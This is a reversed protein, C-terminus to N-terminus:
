RRENIIKMCNQRHSTQEVFDPRNRELYDRVTYVKNGRCEDNSSLGSENPLSRSRHSRSEYRPSCCGQRKEIKNVMERFPVNEVKRKPPVKVVISQLPRCYNEYTAEESIMSDSTQIILNYAVSKKKKEMCKSKHSKCKHTRCSCYHTRRCQDCSLSTTSSAECKKGSHQHSKCCRKQHYKECEKRIKNLVKCTASDSSTCPMDTSHPPDSSETNVARCSKTKVPELQVGKNVFEKKRCRELDSDPATSSSVTKMEKEQPKKNGCVESIGKHKKSNEDDTTCCESTKVVEPDTSDDTDLLYNLITMIEKFCKKRQNKEIDGKSYRKTIDQIMEMILDKSTGTNKPQEDSSTKLESSSGNGRMDKQPFIPTDHKQTQQSAFAVYDTQIARRSKVAPKCKGMCKSSYACGCDCKSLKTKKIDADTRSDMLRETKKHTSKSINDSENSDTSSRVLIHKKSDLANCKEQCDSESCGCACIKLADKKQSETEETSIKELRDSDTSSRPIPKNANMKTNSGEDSLSSHSTKNENCDKLNCDGGCDSDSCGCDCKKTPMKIAPIDPNELNTEKDMLDTDIESHVLPKSKSCTAKDESSNESKTDVTRSTLSLEFPKTNHLKSTNAQPISVNPKKTDIESYHLTIPNNTRTVMGTDVTNYKGDDTNSRLSSKPKYDSTAVSRSETPHSDTGSCLSLTKPKKRDTKDTKSGETLSAAETSSRKEFKAKDNDLFVLPKVKRSQQEDMTKQIHYAASQFSDQSEIQEKIKDLGTQINGTDTLARRLIKPENSQVKPYTNNNFTDRITGAMVIQKQTAFFDDLLENRVGVCKELDDIESDNSHVSLAPSRDPVEEQKPEYFYGERAFITNVFNSDGEKKAERSSVVLNQFPIAKSCEERRSTACEKTDVADTKVAEQGDVNVEGMPIEITNSGISVTLAMNTGQIPITFNDKVTNQPAISSGMNGQTQEIDSRTEKYILKNTKNNLGKNCCSQSSEQSHASGARSYNKPPYGKVDSEISSKSVQRYQESVFEACDVDSMIKIDCLSPDAIRPNISIETQLCRTAEHVYKCEDTQKNSCSHCIDSIMNSNCNMCIASLARNSKLLKKALSTQSCKSTTAHKNCVCSSAPIEQSQIGSNALRSCKYILLNDSALNANVDDNNCMCVYKLDGTTNDSVVRTITRPSKTICIGQQEETIQRVHVNKINVQVASDTVGTKTNVTHPTTTSHYPCCCYHYDDKSHGTKCDAKKLNSKKNQGSSNGSSLTFVSHSRQKRGVYRLDLNSNSGGELKSADGSGDDYNNRTLDKMLEKLKTQSKTDLHVPMNFATDSCVLKQKLFIEKDRLHKKYSEERKLAQIYKQYFEESSTKVFATDSSNKEKSSIDSETNSTLLPKTLNTTVLKESNTVSPLNPASQSTSAIVSPNFKHVRLISKKPRQLKIKEASNTADSTSTTTNEERLGLKKSNYSLGSLFDTTTEDDRYTSQLLRQVVEKILNQKLEADNYRKKMAVKLLNISKELDKSFSHKSGKSSDTTLIGSSELSSKNGATNTPPLQDQNMQNQNYMHGPMYEFSEAESVQEGSKEQVPFNEKDDEVKKTSRLKRRISKLKKKKTRRKLTNLNILVPIGQTHLQASKPLDVSSSSKERSKCLTTQIEKDMRIQPTMETQVSVSEPRVTFGKLVDDVKVAGDKEVNFSIHKTLNVNIAQPNMESSHPVNVEVCDVDRRYIKTTKSGKKVKPKNDDEDFPTSHATPPGINSDQKSDRNSYQQHLALRELTSLSSACTKKDSENAYGVDALSDWELKRQSTISSTPSFPKNM